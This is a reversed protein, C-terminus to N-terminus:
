MTRRQSRCTTARRRTVTRIDNKDFVWLEMATVLKPKGDTLTKSIGAGTEGLFENSPLEIAFSEDYVDDNLLYTTVFQTVPAGRDPATKAFDTKQAQAATNAERREKDLGTQVTTPATSRRQFLMGIPVLTNVIIPVGVVLALAVLCLLPTYNANLLNPSVKAQQDPNNAAFPELQQLKPTLNQPDANTAIMADVVDKANGLYSLQNKANNTDGSASLQWAVQKIYEQKWSEGLNVPEAATYVMPRIGYAWVFGLLLGLLLLGVPVLKPIFLPVSQLVTKM